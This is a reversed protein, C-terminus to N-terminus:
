SSSFAEEINSSGLLHLHERHIRHKKQTRSTNVWFKYFKYTRGYSKLLLIQSSSLGQMRVSASSLKGPVKQSMMKQKEAEAQDKLRKREAMLDEKAKKKMEVKTTDEIIRELVKERYYQQQREIRIVNELRDSRKMEDLERKVIM